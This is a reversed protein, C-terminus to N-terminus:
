RRRLRMLAASKRDVTIPNNNPVENPTRSSENTISSQNIINLNQMHKHSIAQTRNTNNPTNTQQQYQQQSNHQYQKLPNQQNSQNIQNIFDIKYDYNISPDNDKNDVSSFNNNHKFVAKKDQSISPQPVGIKLYDINNTPHNFYKGNILYEFADKGEFPAEIDTDIITPVVTINEPIRIKTNIVDFFKFHNELNNKNIYELLKICSKCEISYFLIKM